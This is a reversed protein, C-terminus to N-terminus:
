IVLLGYTFMELMLMENQSFSFCQNHSVNSQVHDQPWEHQLIFIPFWTFSEGKGGWGLVGTAQFGFTVVSALVVSNDFSCYVHLMFQSVYTLM